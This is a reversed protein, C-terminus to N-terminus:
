EPDYAAGDALVNSATAGGWVLVETGTWVASHGFRAEIPAPSLPRWRGRDPDYAAGDAFEASDRDCCGGWVLLRRGTWASVHGTRAALPSRPLVRWTSSAPDYAAGDAFLRGASSGGWVLMESGTWVAAHFGRPSIPAPPVPTWRVAASDASRPILVVGLALLPVFRRFRSLPGITDQPVVGM